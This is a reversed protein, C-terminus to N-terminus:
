FCFHITFHCSRYPNFYVFVDHIAAASAVQVEVAIGFHLPVIPFCVHYCPPMSFPICGMVSSRYFDMEIKLAYFLVSFPSPKFFKVSNIVQTAPNCNLKDAIICTMITALSISLHWQWNVIYFDLSILPFDQLFLNPHYLVVGTYLITASCRALPSWALTM